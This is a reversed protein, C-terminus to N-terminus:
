QTIELRQAVLWAGLMNRIMPDTREVERAGDAISRFASKADSYRGASGILAIAKRQTAQPGRPTMKWLQIRYLGEPKTFPVLLPKGTSANALIRDQEGSGSCDSM